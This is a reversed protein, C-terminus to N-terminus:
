SKGEIFNINHTLGWRIAEEVEVPSIFYEVAVDQITMGAYFDWCIARRKADTM